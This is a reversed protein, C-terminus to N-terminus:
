KKSEKRCKVCVIINRSPKELFAIFAQGGKKINGKCLACSLDKEATIPQFGIVDQKKYLYDNIKDNIAGLVDSQIDLYDEALSRVLNSVTVRHKKAKEAIKEYLEKSVRAHLVKNHGHTKM